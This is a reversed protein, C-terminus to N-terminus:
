IDPPSAIFADRTFTEAFNWRAYMRRAPVNRKDVALTVFNADHRGAELVTRELLADAVGTGRSSQTVGLYEIEVAAQSEIRNLLLVGVAMGGRQAVWWLAPDFGARARHGALVERTSRLGALEPCDM